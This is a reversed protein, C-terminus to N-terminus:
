DVHCNKKLVLVQDFPEPLNANSVNTGVKHGGNGM